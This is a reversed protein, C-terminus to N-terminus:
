AVWVGAANSRYGVAALAADVLGQGRPNLLLGPGQRNMAYGFSLRAAPAAFGISGGAGVHGFADPPLLASDEDEALGRSRRWARNDMAKMFGLAFRTPILLTADEGTASAVEAMRALGDKDILGGGGQALPRYIQALGRGNSIGNAAGIEAAHGARTNVGNPWWGGSNLIFLAPISKPDALLTEIFPARKARPDPTYPLIPAVRPEEHEPLGIWFDLGLPDGALERFLPGLSKGTARRLPEGVVWGFTLGHYGNRSGPKWHPPEAAIREVMVNWDFVAGAPLKDRIAPVGAQHALMQAITVTDKGHAAFEPWYRAGPADLDILGRAAAVHATLATAGKTCSYVVCITDERWPRNTKPDALGGWLDVVCEGDLTVCVSAGVEGRQEFNAVFAQLVGDFKPDCRGEVVGKALKIEVPKAM